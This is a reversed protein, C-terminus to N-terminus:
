EITKYWDLLKCLQKSDMNNLWHNIKQLTINPKYSHKLPDYKDMLKLYEAHLDYIVKKLISPLELYQKKKKIITYYQLILIGLNNITDVLGNFPDNYEPFYELFQKLIVPNNRMEVLKWEIIPYTGKINKVKLHEKGLLKTRFERNKSYLMFGEKTYDLRDLLVFLENYHVCGITNYNDIKIINPKEIGIDEDSEIFTDMNRSSIHILKPNEYLTINRCKPHCLVFSYCFRTNLLNLNLKVYSATEWFLEKFTQESNWKCDGDFTCKTSVQWIDNHYFLNILTGDVSEEIVCDEWKVNSIFDELTYKSNLSMSVINKSNNDYILGRCEKIMKNSMDARSKDYRIHTLGDKYKTSLGLHSLEEITQNNLYQKILSM